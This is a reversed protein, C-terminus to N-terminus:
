FYNSENKEGFLYPLRGTVSMKKLLTFGANKDNTVDTDYVATTIALIDMNEGCFSCSTPILSPIEIEDEIQMSLTNIIKVRGKGWETAYIKDDRGICFGDVGRLYVERSTAEINGTAKDFLYEKILRTDSDTHYFKKENMSWDMGNSLLLGDLLVSVEGDPSIRYLKGDIKDSIGKRKGSQTGVYLAGDPGVKMDNAHEIKCKDNDYIPTLSNDDCLIHVGGAHSIILRYQTDVAFAAVSFRM